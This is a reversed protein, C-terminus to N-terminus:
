PGADQQDGAPPSARSIPTVSALRGDTGAELAPTRLPEPIGMLMGQLPSFASTLAAKETTTSELLLRLQRTGEKRGQRASRANIEAIQIRARVDLAHRETEARLTTHHDLSTLVRDLARCGLRVLLYAILVHPSRDALAVLVPTLDM